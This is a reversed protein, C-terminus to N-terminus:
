GSSLYIAILDGAIIIQTAVDRPMWLSIGVVYFNIGCSSGWNGGVSGLVDYGALSVAQPINCAESAPRGSNM